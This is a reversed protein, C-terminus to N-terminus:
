CQVHVLTKYSGIGPHGTVVIGRCSKLVEEELVKRLIKYEERVVLSNKLIPVAAFADTFAQMEKFCDYEYSPPIHLIDRLPGDTFDLNDEDVPGTRDNSIESKSITCRSQHPWPKGWTKAHLNSLAEAPAVTLSRSILECYM